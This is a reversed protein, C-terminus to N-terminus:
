NVRGVRRGNDYKVIFARDFGSRRIDKQLARAESLSYFPAVMIRFLGQKGEVEETIINGFNAINRYRAEKYDPMAQVQVAYYVGSPVNITPYGRADSGILPMAAAEDPRHTTEGRIATSVGHDPTKVIPVSPAAGTHEPETISVPQKIPRVNLRSEEKAEPARIVAPPLTKSDSSATSSTPDLAKRTPAAAVDPPTLRLETKALFVDEGFESRNTETDFEFSHSQYGDKLVDMRYSKSPLLAFDFQGNPLSKSALLRKQGSGMVEYLKVEVDRLPQSTNKGDFVQGRAALHVRPLDFYFIDEHSTSIKETGFIRNSVLYGSEGNNQPTCFWDDASSNFPKGLNEPAGWDGDTGLVKFIDLGGFGVQGNSSFYLTRSKAAYFPSTEDGPTNVNPGLNKPFTFDLADNGANKTAMWIDLGGSTGKRDSAFFLVEKGDVHQLNPHTSTSGAENIYSPLAQPSGWRGNNDQMVYIQCESQANNKGDCQTFYFRRGDPTFSGNGFHPHTVQDGIDKTVSPKTWEGNVRQSRYIKSSGGANSSFYLIDDGVPIPAYEIEYSNVNDSLHYLNVENKNPDDVNYKLAWECGRIENQTLQAMQAADPGDYESMFFVFERNAEDYQESQKLSRAYIFRVKDFKKGADKIHRLADAAKRYEKSAFFYEGAKYALDSKRPKQRWAMMYHDGAETLKGQQVLDEAIGVHKKWSLSRQQAQAAVFSLLCATM